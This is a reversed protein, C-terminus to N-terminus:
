VISSIYMEAWACSCGPCVDETSSSHRARYVRFVGWAIVCVNVVLLVVSIVYDQVRLMEHTRHYDDEYDSESESPAFKDHAVQRNTLMTAIHAATGVDFWNGELLLARLEPAVMLLTVVNLEGIINHQLDLVKLAPLNADAFDIHGSFTNRRLVLWELSAPLSASPIADLMNNSLDLGTLKNLNTLAAGDLGSIRNGALLLTELNVLAKLSEMSELENNRLDLFRLAYVSEKVEPANVTQISNDRFDAYELDLPVDFRKINSYAIQVAKPRHLATHLVADYATITDRSVVLKDHPYALRVKHVRTDPAILTSHNEGPKYLFNPVTCAFAESGPDCRHEWATKTYNGSTIGILLFSLLVVICEITM